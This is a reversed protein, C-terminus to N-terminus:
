RRYYAALADINRDLEANNEMGPLQNTTPTSEALAADMEEPPPEAATVIAAQYRKAWERAGEPREEFATSLRDLMGAPVDRLSRYDCEVAYAHLVDHVREIGAKAAAVHVRRMAREADDKPPATQRPCPQAHRIEGTDHDVLVAEAQPISGVGSEALFGLGSISLTVRRKGKTIAKMYANALAEGALGKIPVAGIDTDQRGTADTATVTVMLVDGVIEREVSLISVGNIKRLQDTAGKLAYLTLKGNLKIYAFPQTVPNLGASRCIARHLARRQVATLQSLDGITAAQAALAADDQSITAIGNDQAM